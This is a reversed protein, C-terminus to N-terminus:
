PRSAPPTWGPTPISWYQRHDYFRLRQQGRSCRANIFDSGRNLLFCHFTGTHFPGGYGGAGFQPGQEVKLGSLAYARAAIRLAATCTMNQRRLVRVADYVDDSPRTHDFTFAGHCGLNPAASATAAGLLAGAMLGTAVVSVAVALAGTVSLCKLRLNSVLKNATTM